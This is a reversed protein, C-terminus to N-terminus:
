MTKLAPISLEEAIDHFWQIVEKHLPSGNARREREEEYESLGPYLVPGQGPAPKTNKLLQLMRDMDRKFRDLDTFAAIDYAAFHHKFQSEWPKEDLMSPVSGSLLSGMIEVMMAFGYGKHSGQERTGGLPLGFFEGMEPVPTEELIPTGEGDAIWGPLLDAGVRRALGLKNLAVTSTAVDFLVPPEKGAPAAFSIPNAGLRGEAGFTPLILSGGATMCVGVMDQEAALMAFHGVAGLHGSNLMVVVGVGVNRAKTIAMEMARRGQAIGLGGDGDLTAAVPTERLTRLVPRPNLLGENYQKVYVRVMNSVGHTEVGRLDTMVLVDAAEEAEEHPAGMKELLATVTARLSGEPVRVQDAQPVKFRELM